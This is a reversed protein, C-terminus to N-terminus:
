GVKYLYPRSGVVEEVVGPPPGGPGEKDEPPPWAGKAGTVLWAWRPVTLLPVM